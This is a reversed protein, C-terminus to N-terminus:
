ILWAFCFILLFAIHGWLMLAYLRLAESIHSACVDREGDGMYPLNTTQGGYSRPGGLSIDLAGAMAAEPWGANPSAHKPADRLMTKWARAIRKPSVVGAALCFLVGTLRAPLLNVLDDFRASARGFDLYRENKYGVMSDCTNVAKYVAAGPLGALVLWFAPAIIGDSSNESLTEIAAKSVETHSLSRHDRGVLHRIAERGAEISEGLAVAVDRVRDGLEKQSLLSTALLAELVWGFPIFRLLVTLPVTVLLTLFIVSVLLFLGSTQRKQGSFEPKNWNKEFWAILKGIWIVPHGIKAVLWSPYGVFREVILAAVAVLLSTQLFAM